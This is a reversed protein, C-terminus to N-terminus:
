KRIGLSRIRDSFVKACTPCYRHHVKVDVHPTTRKEIYALFKPTAFRRGCGECTELPHSGIVEDRITITRVSEDDTVRIADTPCINACTGCGICKDAVPVILKRGERRVMKLACAGVIERCVRECLHCRICGDPLPGTDLGYAEALRILASAQPANKILNRMAANRAARVAATDTRVELGERSKVTCSLRIRPPQDPDTKVEVACLRCAGIPSKLAPHYCLAPISIGRERLLSLLFTEEPVEIVTGDVEINAM